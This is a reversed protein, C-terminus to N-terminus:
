DGSEGTNDLRALQLSVLDQTLSQSPDSAEATDLKSRKVAPEALSINEPM